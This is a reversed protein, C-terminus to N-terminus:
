SSDKLGSDGALILAVLQAAGQNASCLRTRLKGAVVWQQRETQNLDGVKAKAKPASKGKAKAKAQTKGKKDDEQGEENKGEDGEKGKEGGAEDALKGIDNSPGLHRTASFERFFDERHGVRIYSPCLTSYHM